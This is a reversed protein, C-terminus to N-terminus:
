TFKEQQPPQGRREVPHASPNPSSMLEPFVPQFLPVNTNAMGDVIGIRRRRDVSFRRLEEMIKEDQDEAGDEEEEDDEESAVEEDTRIGLSDDDSKQEEVFDNGELAVHVGYKGGLIRRVHACKKTSLKNFTLMLLKLNSQTRSGDAPVMYEPTYVCTIETVGVDSVLNHDLKLTELTENKLIMDGFVVMGADTINNSSLGLETLTSNEFLAEAIAITGNDGIFNQSLDLTKLAKNANLMGALLIGEDPPIENGVLSLYTLSNINETLAHAIYSVETIGNSELDIWTLTKNDQLANGLAAAGVNGIDNHHLYLYLLGVNTRLANALEVGGDGDICNRYLAIAELETDEKALWGALARVGESTIYNKGLYLSCAVLGARAILAAGKDCIRNDTLDLETVALGKSKRELVNFVTELSEDDVDNSSLDIEYFVRDIADKEGGNEDDRGTKEDLPGVM